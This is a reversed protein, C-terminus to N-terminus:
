WRNANKIGRELMNLDREVEIFTRETRDELDKVKIYNHIAILSLIGVAILIIIEM